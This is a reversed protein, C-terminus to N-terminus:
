KKFAPLEYYGSYGQAWAVLSYSMIGYDGSLVQEKTLLQYDEIEGDQFKIQSLQSAELQIEFMFQYVKHGLKEAISIMKFRMQKPDVKLGTEEFLERVAAEAPTEGADVVGGPFNWYHKYIAKVVLVKDDVLCIMGGSSIQKDLRAMWVDDPLWNAPKPLNNDSPTPQHQNNPM